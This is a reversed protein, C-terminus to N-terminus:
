GLRRSYSYQQARSTATLGGQSQEYWAPVPSPLLLLLLLCRWSSGGMVGRDGYRMHVHVDVKKRHGTTSQSSRRTLFKSFASGARTRM